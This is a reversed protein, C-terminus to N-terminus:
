YMLLAAIPLSERSLRLAAEAQFLKELAERKVKGTLMMTMSGESWSATVYGGVESYEPVGQPPPTSLNANSLAILHVDNKADMKFCIITMAQGKWMRKSCGYIGCKALAAPVSGGPVPSTQAALWTRIEPMDSVQHDITAEAHEIKEVEAVAVAQWDTPAGVGAYQMVLAVGILLVIAAAALLGGGNFPGLVRRGFWQRWTVRSVKGGALIRDRLGAPPQVQRLKLALAADTRRQEEAWAALAPDAQAKALAVALAPDADDQGGPRRASLLMQTESGKM